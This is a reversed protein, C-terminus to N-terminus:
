SILFLRIWNELAYFHIGDLIFGEEQLVRLIERKINSAPVRIIEKKAHVGNRIRTIMDAIPDTMSM